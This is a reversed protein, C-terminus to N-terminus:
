SSIVNASGAIPTKGSRGRGISGPTTSNARLGVRRPPELRRRLLPRLAAVSPEALSAARLGALGTVADRPDRTKLFKATDYIVGPAAGLLRVTGAIKPAAKLGKSVAPM